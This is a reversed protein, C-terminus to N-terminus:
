ENEPVEKSRGPTRRFVGWFILFVLGVGVLLGGLLRGKAPVIQPYLPKLIPKVTPTGVKNLLETGPKCSTEVGLPDTGFEILEGTRDVEFLRVVSNENLLVSKTEQNDLDGAVIVQTALFASTQSYSRFPPIHDQWDASLSPGYGSAVILNRTYPLETPLKLSSDYDTTFFLANPFSAKLARLVLLKDFVDSGLVGIARIGQGNGNVRIGMDIERLRYELRRLYDYQSKGDPREIRRSNKEQNQGKTDNSIM